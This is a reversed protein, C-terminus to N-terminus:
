DAACAPPVHYIPMDAGGAKSCEHCYVPRCKPCWREEPENAQEDSGADYLSGCDTCVTIM